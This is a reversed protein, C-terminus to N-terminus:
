APVLSIWRFMMASRTSPSGRHGEGEVEFLELEALERWSGPDWGEESDELEAVREVPYREALFSRAQARLEEQEDTFAFDM